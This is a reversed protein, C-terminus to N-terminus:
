IKGNEDEKYDFEELIMNAMDSVGESDKHISILKLVTDLDIHGYRKLAKAITKLQTLAGLNYITMYRADDWLKQTLDNIIRDAELESKTKDVFNYKNLIERM